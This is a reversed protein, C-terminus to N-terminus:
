NNFFTGVASHHLVDGWLTCGPVVHKGFNRSIPMTKDCARSVLM